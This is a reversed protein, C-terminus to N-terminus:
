NGKLMNLFQEIEKQDTITRVGNENVTGLNVNMICNSENKKIFGTNGAQGTIFSGGAQCLDVNFQTKQVGANSTYTGDENRGSSHVVKGDQDRFIIASADDEDAQASYGDNALLLEVQPNDIWLKNQTITYGHCDAVVDFVNNDISGSKFSTLNGNQDHGETIQTGRVYQLAQIPTGNDAFIYVVNYTRNLSYVTSTGDDHIVPPLQVSDTTIQQGTTTVVINGNSDTIINGDPDTYKIPNNAVFSYPSHEYYEDAFVDLVNWRGIQSDYFRAGYDYWELDLEDQMDKGNYLYKNTTSGTTSSKSLMGFPYYDNLQTPINNGSEAIARLKGLHDKLHYEYTYALGGTHSVNVIGEDTHMFVLAKNNDYEFLCGYYRTSPAGAITAVKKLKVGTTDYIYV